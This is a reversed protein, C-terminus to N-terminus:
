RKDRRWYYINVITYDKLWFHEREYAISNLLFDREAKSLRGGKKFHWHELAEDISHYAFSSECPYSYSYLLRYEPHFLSITELSFTKETVLFLAEIGSSFIKSVSSEIGKKTLHLSNCAIALNFTKLEEPCIEEFKRCDMNIKLGFKKAGLRLYDLMAVSPELATVRCGLMSLPISLVGDGAGIDIINTDKHILNLLIKKIPEHYRNHERWLRYWKAYENWYSVTKIDVTVM